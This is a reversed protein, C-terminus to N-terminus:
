VGLVYALDRLAEALNDCTITATQRIFAHDHVTHSALVAIVPKQMAYSAGMEWCTGISVRDAGLFYALVADCNKVDNFDRRVISQATRASSHEDVIPTYQGIASEVGRLPSLPKIGYERLFGAATARWGDQAEAFSLGTIPGALYVTKM